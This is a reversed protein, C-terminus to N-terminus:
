TASAEKYLAILQPKVVDPHFEKEYCHRANMALQLYEEDSLAFIRAIAEAAEQENEVVFGAKHKAIKNHIPVQKSIIVPKYCSLSQVISLGFGESRSLQIYAKSEILIRNRDAEEIKGTFFVDKGIVLGLENCIQDRESVSESDAPGILIFDVDERKTKEKFLHFAKLSIDIGKQVIHFRGIFCLQKKIISKDFKLKIDNVQNGVIVVPTNTLEKLCGTCQSTLAQIVKANDFVYKDFINVFANRYWRKIFPWDKKYSKCYVYADHPTILYPIGAKKLLKAVSFNRLNYIHNLHFVIGKEPLDNIWPALLKPLQLFGIGKSGFRHIPIGDRTELNYYTKPKQDDFEIFQFFFIDKLLLVNQYSFETLGDPAGGRYDGLIYVTLKDSM